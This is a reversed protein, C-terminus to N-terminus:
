DDGKPAPTPLKRLVGPPLAGTAHYVAKGWTGANYFSWDQVAPNAVDILQGQWTEGRADSWHVLWMAGLVDGAQPPDEAAHLLDWSIFYEFSYGQGDADKRFAGRYGPPNIATAHNDMGYRLHLCPKKEPEYYWITIFTLKDSRDDASPPRGMLVDAQLGRVPWGM